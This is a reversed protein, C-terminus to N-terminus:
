QSKTFMQKRYIKIIDYYFTLLPLTKQFAEVIIEPSIGNEDIKDYLSKKTKDILSDYIPIGHRKMKMFIFDIQGKLAKEDFLDNELLQTLYKEDMIEKVDSEDRIQLLINKIESYNSILLDYRKEKVESLLLRWYSEELSEMVIQEKVANLTALCNQFENYGNSMHVYNLIQKQLDEIQEIWDKSSEDKMDLRDKIDQLQHYEVGIEYMYKKLDEKKYKEFEELFERIVKRRETGKLLSPDKTTLIFLIMQRAKQQLIDPYGIEKGFQYIVLGLLIKRSIQNSYDFFKVNKNIKLFDMALEYTKCTSFFEQILRVLIDRETITPDSM